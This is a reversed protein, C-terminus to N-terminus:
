AIKPWSNPWSSGDMRAEPTDAVTPTATAVQAFVEQM